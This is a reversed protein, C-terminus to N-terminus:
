RDSLICLGDRLDLVITAEGGQRDVIAAPRSTAALQAFGSGEYLLRGEQWCRLVRGTEPVQHDRVPAFMASSEALVQAPREIEVLSTGAQAPLWFLGCLLFIATTCWTKM